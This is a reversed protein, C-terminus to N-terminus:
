TTKYTFIMFGNMKEFILTMKAFFRKYSQLSILEM